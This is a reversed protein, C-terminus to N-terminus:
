PSPASCESARPNDPANLPSSPAPPTVSTDLVAVRKNVLLVQYAHARLPAVDPTCAWNNYHLNVVYFTQQLKRITDLFRQENAGHLEMPMQVIRDLVANPTAMLSDWEAGEVDIKLLIEKGADGNKKIQNTITDFPQGGSQEKRPGVCEDHFFFKVGPCTPRHETFCDYQHVPVALERSVECGWNDERDIGYSYASQVDRTLNACMLYGGDNTSGYRKLTCNKLAVPQIEKLLAERIARQRRAQTSNQWGAVAAVSLLIAAVVLVRSTKM